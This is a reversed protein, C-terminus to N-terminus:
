FGSTLMDLAAKIEYEHAVLSGAHQKLERKMLAAAFHTLLVHEEDNIMIKPHLRPTLPAGDVTPKLPVVFRTTFPQITDAQCDVVYSGDDLRYLDFQAM